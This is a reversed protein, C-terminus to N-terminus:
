PREGVRRVGVEATGVAKAVREGILIAVGVRSLDGEGDGGDIVGGLDATRGIPRDGDILVRAGDRLYACGVGFAVSDGEGDCAALIGRQELDVRCGACESKDACGIEFCGEIAVAVVGVGDGDGSGVSCVCGLGVYVDGHRITRRHLKNDTRPLGQRDPRRNNLIDECICWNICIAEKRKIKSGM